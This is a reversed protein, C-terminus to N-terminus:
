LALLDKWREQIFHGGQIHSGLNAGAPLGVKSGSYLRQLLFVSLLMRLFVVRPPARGQCPLLEACSLVLGTGGSNLLAAFSGLVQSYHLKM